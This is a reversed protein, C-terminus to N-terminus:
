GRSRRTMVLRDSGPFTAVWGQASERLARTLIRGPGDAKYTQKFRLSAGERGAPPRAIPQTGESYVATIERTVTGDVEVSVVGQEQVLGHELDMTMLMDLNKRVGNWVLIGELHPREAGKDLFSSSYWLYSENPGFRFRAVGLTPGGGEASVEWEGILFRYPAYPRAPEAFAVGTAFLLAILATWRKSKERRTSM